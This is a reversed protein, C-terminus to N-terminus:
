RPLVLTFVKGQRVAGIGRLVAQADLLNVTGLEDAEGWRGWNTPLDQLFAKLDM